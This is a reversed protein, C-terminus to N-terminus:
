IFYRDDIDVQESTPILKYNDEIDKKLDELEEQLHEIICVSDQITGILSNIEILNGRKQNNNFEGILREIDKIDKEELEVFM